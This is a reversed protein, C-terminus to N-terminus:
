HANARNRPLSIGSAIGLAAFAAAILLSWHYGGEWDYLVGAMYPAVLGAGGYAMTIRGYIRAMESVSYYSSITVPYVAATAGFSGGVLALVVLSLAASPWLFLALLALTMTTALGALVRRGSLWDTVPGAVICAAVYGVSTMTPGLWAREAAVGFAVAIGAAHSLAMLGGLSLVVFTTLILLFTRPQNTFFGRLLHTAEADNAAPAKAGSLHLLGACVFGVAVMAAACILLTTFPGVDAIVMSLPAPWILAAGAFATVSLSIAVSRRLPLDVSATQLALAYGVGLTPGFIVGFGIIVFALSQGLGAVLLGCGAILGLGAALRPLPVRVLIHPSIFMGVAYCGIGVSFVMSVDARTVGLAAELPEIFVSWCYILGAFLNWLIGALLALLIM